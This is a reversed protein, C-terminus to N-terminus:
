YLKEGNQVMTITKCHLGKTRDTKTGNILQYEKDVLRKEAKM